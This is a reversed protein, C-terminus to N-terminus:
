KDIERTDALRPMYENRNGGCSHIIQSGYPLRTYQLYEVIGSATRNAYLIAGCSDIPRSVDNLGFASTRGCEFSMPRAKM